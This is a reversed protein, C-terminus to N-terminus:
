HKTINETNVVIVLKLKAINLINCFQFQNNNDIVLKLKAINQINAQVKNDIRALNIDMQKSELENSTAKDMLMRHAEQLFVDASELNQLKLQIEIESNELEKVRENLKSTGQLRGM